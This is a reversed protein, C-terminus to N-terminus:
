PECWGPVTALVGRRHDGDCRRLRVGCASADAVLRRCAGALTAPEDADLGIVAVVRLSAHGSALEAARAAEGEDDRALEAAALFGAAAALRRDAASATRLRASRERAAHQEEVKVSIAVTRRDAAVLLPALVQEDVRGTPWEEVSFAAHLTAPGVLHRWRAAVDCTLLSGVVPAVREALLETVDHEDLLRAGRVGAAAVRRALDVPDDGTLAVYSTVDAVPGIWPADSPPRGPAMRTLFTVTTHSSAVNGLSRLWAGMAEGHARPDHALARLGLHHVQAISTCRGDPWRLHAIGGTAEVTAGACLSGRRPRVCFAALVPVWEDLGRGRAPVTAVAAGGLGCLVGLAVGSAHQTAVGAVLALSGLAVAVAQGPRWGLVTGRREQRGFGYPPETASM